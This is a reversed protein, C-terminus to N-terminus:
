HVHIEHLLNLRLPRLPKRLPRWAKTLSFFKLPIECLKSIIKVKLKHIFMKAKLTIELGSQLTFGPIFFALKEQWFVAVPPLENQPKSFYSTKHPSSVSLQFLKKFLFKVVFDM